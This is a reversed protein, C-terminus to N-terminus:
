FLEVTGPRFPRRRGGGTGNGSPRDNPAPPAPCVPSSQMAETSGGGRPARVVIDSVHRELELMRAELRRLIQGLVDDLQLATVSMSVPQRLEAAAATRAAIFSTMEHARAQLVGAQEELDRSVDRAAGVVDGLTEQTRGLAVGVGSNLRATESSVHEVQEAIAGFAPYRDGARAAEIAANLSLFRIQKALQEIGGVVTSAEALMGSVAQLRELIWHASTTSRQAVASLLGAAEAAYGRLGRSGAGETESPLLVTFLDQLLRDRAAIQQAMGDFGQQLQAVADSLLDRAQTLETRFATCERALGARLEHVPAVAETTEHAGTGGSGSIM